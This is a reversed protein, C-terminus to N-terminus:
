IAVGEEFIIEIYTSDAGPMLSRINVVKGSYPGAIFVARDAATIAQTVGCRRVVVVGRMTSELRGAEVRERGKEPKVRVWRSVIETWGTTEVNGFGDDALVVRDFRVRGDITGAAITL